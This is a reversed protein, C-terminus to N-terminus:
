RQVLGERSGAAGLDGERVDDGEGDDLTQRLDRRQVRGEDVRDVLLARGPNSAVLVDTESEGDVDLTRVARAVEQDRDDAVGVRHVKTCEQHGILVQDAFDMRRVKAGIVEDTGGHRERVGAREARHLRDRTEHRTLARDEADAREAPGSTEFGGIRSREGFEAHALHQREGRGVVMPDDLPGLGSQEQFVHGLAEGALM